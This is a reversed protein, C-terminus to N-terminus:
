KKVGWWVLLAALVLLGAGGGIAGEVENGFRKAGYSQNGEAKNESWTSGTGSPKGPETTTVPETGSQSGTGILIEAITSVKELGNFFKDAYGRVEVNDTIQGLVSQSPRNNVAKRSYDYAGGTDATMAPYTAGTPNALTRLWSIASGVHTQQGDNIEAVTIM